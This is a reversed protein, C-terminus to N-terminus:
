SIAALLLMFSLVILQIVLMATKIYNLTVTMNVLPFM